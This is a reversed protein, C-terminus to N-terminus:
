TFAQWFSKSEGGSVVRVCPTHAPRGSKAIYDVAMSMSKNREDKSAGSGVWVFVRGGTDVIYVEDAKLSDKKFDVQKMDLKGSRDSIEHMEHKVPLPVDDDTPEALQALTPAKQLGLAGWFTDDKADIGDVVRSKAKGLREDKLGVVVESGKRREQMSCAPSNWQIIELGLDLVFVDGKNLSKHECKVEMVKVNKKGKVHLLRPKYEEPKVKNFGSDIGGDM